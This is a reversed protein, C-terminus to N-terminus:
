ADDEVGVVYFLTANVNSTSNTTGFQVKDGAALYYDIPMPALLYHQENNQQGFTGGLSILQLGINGPHWTSDTSTGNRRIGTWLDIGGTALAIKAIASGDTPHGAFLNISTHTNDNEFAFMLRVRAAKDAPVTYVTTIVGSVSTVTSKENIIKAAM